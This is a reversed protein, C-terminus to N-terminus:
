RFFDIDVIVPDHDSARWPTGPEFLRPDRDFDLNYDYLSPEDANVHWEVAQRVRGALAPSAFAHDLAGAQGNYVFSYAADGNERDLLNVFGGHEIVRVPDERLYANLDGIILVNGNANGAISGASWDALAAAARARTRNCNGQGDGRNPDNVDDCDSGKSKLHNVLVAVRMGSAKDVFTQALVPRNRGSDFRGDVAGSLLSFDGLTEVAAPRYLLGVKISDAGITGTNVFDYDLGANGLASRLLELSAKANNEIEMIGVIDADVERFTAVIKDLQRELERPNDAGRCRRDGGPGCREAGEDLGSFLNLVNLSVVRLGATRAPPDPRPNRPEIEVPETPMLRYGDNGNKGSGRSWRLNGTLGSITNGARPPVDGTAYRNDRPNELRHGDDLLLTRRALQERHQTFRGPDPANGNTFQYPRDDAALLLEGFRGLNRNGAITLPAPIRILMGEFRELGAEPFEVVTAEYRANGVARVSTAQLQTEGFHEVVTADVDVVQGPAVDLLQRGQEFVFVGESSAPNGDAELSAIYFGGLDGHGHSGYDQFDGTVVGRVVVTSGQLPSSDGSGQVAHVSVAPQSNVSTDQCAALLLASLLILPRQLSHRM